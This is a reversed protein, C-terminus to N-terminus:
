GAVEAGAAKALRGKWGGSGCFLLFCVTERSEQMKIKEM